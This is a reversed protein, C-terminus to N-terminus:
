ANPDQFKFVEIAERVTYFAATDYPLSVVDKGKLVPENEILDHVQRDIKAQEAAPLAGIYSISRVRNFVVDEAAGVHQNSFHAEHLPGFGKFPFVKRWEGTGYRPTDGSHANAIRGLEAVWGVSEDRVNWVLGFRGGPKLVRHIEALAEDTAFWHFAQACVLVDVSDDELPIANATGSLAKVQPHATGLLARMEDVPEVAIVEAGTAVLLSTFKGTGAGLDVVTTGPKLGLQVTLWHNLEAPYEPRGVTYKDAALSFGTAAAQHISRNVDTM